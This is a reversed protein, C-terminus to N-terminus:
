PTPLRSTYGKHTHIVLQTTEAGEHKPSDSSPTVTVGKEKPGLAWPGQSSSASVGRCTSSCGLSRLGPGPLSCTQTQFCLSPGKPM